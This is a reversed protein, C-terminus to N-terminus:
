SPIIAYVRDVDHQPQPRKLVDLLLNLVLDEPLVISFRDMLRTILHSLNAPKAQEDDAMDYLSDGLTADELPRVTCFLSQKERDWGMDVEIWGWARSLKRFTHRSM